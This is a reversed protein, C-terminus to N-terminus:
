SASALRRNWKRLWGRWALYGRAYGGFLRGECLRGRLYYADIRELSARPSGPGVYGLRASCGVAFHEGVIERLAPSESGYPYAFSTVGRGTRDEIRQRSEVIEARAAEISLTALDPHTLTHAGFRVGARSLEEVASWSLLKRGGFGSPQSPWDNTKGVYNAVLFVTAPLGYEGLIPLAESIFNAFGDDFTLAVAPRGSEDGAAEQMEEAPRILVHERLLSEIRRRLMAPTVSLVSGSSDISHYTLVARRLM